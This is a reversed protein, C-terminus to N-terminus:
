RKLHGWFSIVLGVVVMSYAVAPQHFSVAISSLALGLGLLWLLTGRLSLSHTKMPQTRWGVLPLLVRRDAWLVAANMVLFMGVVYPTGKWNQSITVMLIGSVMPVLMIAGLTSYRLTLLLFGIIIQGFAIFRAFLGLNHKALEEELIVPGIIGPFAHQAYLKAMGSTFFILGLFVCTGNRLWTIWRKPQVPREDPNAM